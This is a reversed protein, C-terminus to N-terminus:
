SFRQHLRLADRKYLNIIISWYMLSTSYTKAKPDINSILNQRHLIFDRWKSCHQATRKWFLVPAPWMAWWHLHFMWVLSFLFLASRAVNKFRTKHKPCNCVIDFHLYFNTWQLKKIYTNKCNSLFPPVAENLVQMSYPIQLLLLCFQMVTSYYFSM